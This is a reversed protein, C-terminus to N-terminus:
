SSMDAALKLFPSPARPAIMEIPPQDAPPQAAPAQAFLQIGLAFFFFLSVKRVFKMGM